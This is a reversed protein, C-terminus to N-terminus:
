FCFMNKDAFTDRIEYTRLPRLPMKQEKTELDYGQFCSSNFNLVEWELVVSTNSTSVVEKIVPPVLVSCPRRLRTRTPVSLWYIITDQGWATSAICEWEGSHQSSASKVTLVGGQQLIDLGSGSEPFVLQGDKKWMRKANVGLFM